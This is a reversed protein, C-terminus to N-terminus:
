RGLYVIVRGARRAFGPAGVILDPKGDRNLDGIALAAGFEAGAEPNPPDVILNANPGIASGGYFVYVRGARQRNDVVAQYASVALDATGDGNLDGAALAYGFASAARPTPDELILGPVNSV